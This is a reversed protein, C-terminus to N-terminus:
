SSIMLAIKATERSVITAYTITAPAKTIHGGAVLRAKCRFDEMKVDFVMHCQLFPHGIPISKEDLLVKFAVRVNDMEKSIADVWLTNGNKADLVYAQEVTKPLKICFM